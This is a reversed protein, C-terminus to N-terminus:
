SSAGTIGRVPRATGVGTVAREHIGVASLIVLPRTITVTVRVQGDIIETHGDYGTTRLYADAAREAAIPDLEVRGARLPAPDLQQAGARAAASATDIAERRAALIRGGDYTLGSVVFLSAFLMVLLVSVAGREASSRRTM